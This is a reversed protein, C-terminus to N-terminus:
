CAIIYPSLSDDKVCEFRHGKYRTVRAQLSVILSRADDVLVQVLKPEDGLFKRPFCSDSKSVGEDTLRISPALSPSLSKFGM